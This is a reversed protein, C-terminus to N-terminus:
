GRRPPKRHCLKSVANRIHSSAQSTWIDAKEPSTFRFWRAMIGAMYATEIDDAVSPALTDDFSRSAELSLLTEDEGIDVHSVFPKLYEMIEGNMESWFSGLIRSDADVTAVREFFSSDGEAKGGTYATNLAVRNLIEAKKIIIKFNKM